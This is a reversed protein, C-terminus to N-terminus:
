FHYEIGTEPSADEGMCCCHEEEEGDGEVDGENEEEM